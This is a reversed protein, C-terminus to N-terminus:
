AIDGEGEADDSSDGLASETNQKERLDDLEMGMEALRRGAEMAQRKWLALERRWHVPEM